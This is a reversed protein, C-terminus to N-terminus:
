TKNSVENKVNQIAFIVLQEPIKEVCKINPYHEWYTNRRSSCEM